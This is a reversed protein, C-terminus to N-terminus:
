VFSTFNHKWKESSFTWRVKQLWLVVGTLLFSSPWEWRWWLCPAQGETFDTVSAAFDGVFYHMVHWVSEHLKHVGIISSTGIDILHCFIRVSKLQSSEELQQMTLRKVTNFQLLVAMQYTSAQLFEFNFILFNM